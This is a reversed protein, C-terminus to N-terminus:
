FFPHGTPVKSCGPSIHPARPLSYLPPLGVDPRPKQLKALQAQYIQAFVKIQFEARMAVGETPRRIAERM